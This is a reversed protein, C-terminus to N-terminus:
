SVMSFISYYDLRKSLVVIERGEHPPLYASRRRVGFLRDKLSLRAPFGCVGLCFHGFGNRVSKPTAHTIDIIKWVGTGESTADFAGAVGILGGDELGHEPVRGERGLNLGANGFGGATQDLVEPFLPGSVSGQIGEQVFVFQRISFAHNKHAQGLGQEANGVGLGGVTQDVVLQGLGIPSPM